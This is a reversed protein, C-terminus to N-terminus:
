DEGTDATDPNHSDPTIINGIGPVPDNEDIGLLKRLELLEAKADATQSLLLSKSLSTM